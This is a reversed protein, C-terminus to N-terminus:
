TDLSNDLLKIVAPIDHDESHAILEIVHHLLGGPAAVRDAVVTAHSDLLGITQQRQGETQKALLVAHDWAQQRATVVDFNLIREDTRGGFHDLMWMLPSTDDVASQVKDLVDVLIKNILMFDNRLAPLKDGPAVEVAAVALDLNIHANIGLLLHQVIVTHDDTLLNFAAQWCKSPKGTKRWEEVAVLYRTGFAADFRSMREGDDFENNAIAREVAMTVQRYLAAFYGLRSRTEISHEVIESLNTIVADINTVIPTM